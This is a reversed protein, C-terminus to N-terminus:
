YKTLPHLDIKIKLEKISNYVNHRQRRWILLQERSAYDKKDKIKKDIDELDNKRVNLNSLLNEYENKLKIQHDLDQLSNAPKKM